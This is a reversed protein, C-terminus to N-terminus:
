EDSLDPEKFILIYVPNRANFQSVFSYAKKDRPDTIIKTFTHYLVSDRKIVPDLSEINVRETIGTKFDFFYVNTEVSSSTSSGTGYQSNGYTDSPTLSYNTTTIREKLIFTCIAGRLFIPSLYNHHFIFLNGEVVYAFLADTYPNRIQASNIYYLNSFSIRSNQNELDIECDPYKPANYQLELLSTYIGKALKFNNNFIVSDIMSQAFCSTQICIIFLIVVFKM